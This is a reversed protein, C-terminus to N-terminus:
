FNHKLNFRSVIGDLEDLSSYDIIVSGQGNKKHKITTKAGLFDSIAEQLRL